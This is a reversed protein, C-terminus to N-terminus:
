IKESYTGKVPLDQSRMMQTFVCVLTDDIYLGLPRDFHSDSVIFSSNSIKQTTSDYKISIEGKQKDFTWDFFYTNDKISKLTYEFLEINKIIKKGTGASGILYKSM